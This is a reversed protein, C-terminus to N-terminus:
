KKVANSVRAEGAVNAVEATLEQFFIRNPLLWSLSAGDGKLGEEGFFNVYADPMNVFPLTHAHVPNV